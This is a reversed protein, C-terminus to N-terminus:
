YDARFLAKVRNIKLAVNKSCFGSYPKGAVRQLFFFVLGCLGGFLCRQIWLM